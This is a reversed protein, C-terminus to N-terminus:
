LGLSCPAACTHGIRAWCSCAALPLRRSVPPIQQRHQPCQCSRGHLRGHLHCPGSDATHTYIKATKHTHTRMFSKHIQSAYQLCKKARPGTTEPAALSKQGLSATQLPVVEMPCVSDSVSRSCMSTTNQTLCIVTHGIDGISECM